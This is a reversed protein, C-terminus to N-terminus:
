QTVLSTHTTQTQLSPCSNDESLSASPCYPPILKHPCKSSEVKPKTPAWPLEQTLITTSRAPLFETESTLLCMACAPAGPEFFSPLSPPPWWSWNSTTYQYSLHSSSCPIYAILLTQIWLCLKWNPAQITQFLLTNIINSQQNYKIIDSVVFPSGSIALPLLLILYDPLLLLAFVLLLMLRYCWAVLAWLFLLLLLSHCTYFSAFNRTNIGAYIFYTCRLAENLIELFRKCFMYWVGIALHIKLSAMGM